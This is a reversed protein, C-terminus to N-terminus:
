LGCRGLPVVKSDHDVGIGHGDKVHVLVGIVFRSQVIAVLAQLPGHHDGCVGISLETLAIKTWREFLKAAGASKPLLETQNACLTTLPLCAEHLTSRAFVGSRCKM